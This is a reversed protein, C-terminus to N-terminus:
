QVNCQSNNCSGVNSVLKSNENPPQQSSEHDKLSMSQRDILIKRLSLNLLIYSKKGATLTHPTVYDHPQGQPGFRKSSESAEMRDALGNCSEKIGSRGISGFCRM